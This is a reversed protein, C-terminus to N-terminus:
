SFLLHVKTCFSINQIRKEFLLKKTEMSFLSLSNKSVHLTILRTKVEDNISNLSVTSGGDYEDDVATNTVTISIKPPDKMNVKYPNHKDSDVSASRKRTLPRKTPPSDIEIVKHVLNSNLVSM